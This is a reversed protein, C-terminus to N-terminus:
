KKDIEDSWLVSSTLRNGLYFCPNRYKESKIYAWDPAYAGKFNSNFNELLRHVSKINNLSDGTTLKLDEIFTPVELKEIEKKM